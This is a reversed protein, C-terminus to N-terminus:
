CLISPMEVSTRLDPITMALPPDGAALAYPIAWVEDAGFCHQFSRIAAIKKKVSDEGRHKINRAQLDLMNDFLDLLSTVATAAIDIPYKHPIDVRVQSRFSTSVLVPLLDLLCNFEAIQM